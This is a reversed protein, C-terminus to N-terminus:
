YAPAQTTLLQYRVQINELGIGNSESLSTRAKRNNSVRLQDDEQTIEIYLPDKIDMSDLSKGTKLLLERNLDRYASESLRDKLVNSTDGHLYLDLVFNSITDPHVEMAFAECQDLLLLVSDSFEFARVDRIHMTGFLYSPQSLNKGSVEWLLSYNSKDVEQSRVSSLCCCFGVFLMWYKTMM